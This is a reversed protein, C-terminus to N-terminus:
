KSSSGTAKRASGSTKTASGQESTDKTVMTDKDMIAEKKAMMAKEKMAIKEDLIAQQEPNFTEVVGMAIKGIVAMRSDSLIIIKEQTMEPLGVMQMSTVMAEKETKGDRVENKYTRQLKAIREKPVMTGMQTTLKSIEPFRAETLGRLQSKQNRDLKIGAFEEREIKRVLKDVEESMMRAKRSAATSASSNSSSGRSSSQANLGSALLAVIAFCFLCNKLM